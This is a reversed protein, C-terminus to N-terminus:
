IHLQSGRGWSMRANVLGQVTWAQSVDEEDTEYGIDSAEELSRAALQQHTPVLCPRVLREEPGVGVQVSGAALGPQKTWFVGGQDTCCHTLAVCEQGVPVLQEIMCVAGSLGDHPSSM